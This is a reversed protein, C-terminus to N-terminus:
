KSFTGIIMRSTPVDSGFVIRGGLTFIKDEALLFLHDDFPEPLPTNYSITNSQIDYVTILNSIQFDSNVDTVAFGGNVTTIGGGIILKGNVIPQASSYMALIPRPLVGDIEPLWRGTILDFRRVKNHLTFSERIAGGILYLINEHVGAGFWISPDPLHTVVRWANSVTNYAEVVTAYGLEDSLKGGLILIEEGWAVVTASQIQTPKPATETWTDSSPDYYLNVRIPGDAYGGFVYLKGGVVASSLEEIGFDYDAGRTWEGTKLDYIDLRSLNVGDPNGNGGFLYLKGDIVGGTFQDRAVPMNDAASWTLQGYLPDLKFFRSGSAPPGLDLTTSHDVFTHKTWAALDSSETLWFQQTPITEIDVHVSDGVRIGISQADLAAPYTMIMALAATIKISPSSKMTGLLKSKPTVASSSASPHIPNR